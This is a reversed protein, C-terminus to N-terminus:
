SLPSTGPVRVAQRIQTRKGTRLHKYALGLMVGNDWFNAPAHAVDERAPTLLM